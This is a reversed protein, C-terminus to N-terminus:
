KKIVAFTVSTVASWDLYIKGDSQTYYARPIDNILVHGTTAPITYTLNPIAVGKEKAGNALITLTRDSGGANKALVMLDDDFLAADGDTATASNYTLATGVLTPDLAAVTTRAM